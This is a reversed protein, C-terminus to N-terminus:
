VLISKTGQTTQYEFVTLLWNVFLGVAGEQILVLFHPVKRHESSRDVPRRNLGLGEPNFWMQHHGTALTSQSSQFQETQLLRISM